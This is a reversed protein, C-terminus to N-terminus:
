GEHAFKADGEAIGWTRGKSHRLRRPKLSAQPMQLDARMVVQRPFSQSCVAIRGCQLQMLSSFIHDAYSQFALSTFLHQSM